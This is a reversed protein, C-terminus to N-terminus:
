HYIFGLVLSVMPLGSALWFTWKVPTPTQSPLPKHFLYTILKSHFLSPTISLSLPSSSPSSSQKTCPQRLSVPLKNWLHPSAHRFSRNTIKLPYGTKPRALSSTSCLDPLLTSHNHSSQQIYSFTGNDSYERITDTPGTPFFDRATNSSANTLQRSQIYRDRQRQSTHVTLWMSVNYM